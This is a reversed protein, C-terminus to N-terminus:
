HHQFASSTKRHIGYNFRVEIVPHIEERQQLNLRCLNLNSTINNTTRRGALSHIAYRILLALLPRTTAACPISTKPM